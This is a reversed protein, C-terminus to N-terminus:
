LPPCSHLVCRVCKLGSNTTQYVRPCHKQHQLATTSCLVNRATTEVVTWTCSYDDAYSVANNRLEFLGSSCTNPALLRRWSASASAGAGAGAGAVLVVVAGEGAATEGLAVDGPAAGTATAGIGAALGAPLGVSIVVVSGGGNVPLLVVTGLSLGGRVRGLGLGLVPFLGNGLGLMVGLGPPLGPVLEGTVLGDGPWPFLGLLPLLLVGSVLVDSVSGVVNTGVVGSAPVVGGLVLLGTDPVDKFCEDHGRSCKVSDGQECM